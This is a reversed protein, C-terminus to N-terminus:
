AAPQSLMERIHDEFGQRFEKNEPCSEFLAELHTTVLSGGTLLNILAADSDDRKQQQTPDKLYTIIVQEKDPAPINETAKVLADLEEQVKPFYDADFRDADKIHYKKYRNM